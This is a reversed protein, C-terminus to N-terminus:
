YEWWSLRYRCTYGHCGEGGMNQSVKRTTEKEVKEAEKYGDIAEVSILIGVREMKGVDMM